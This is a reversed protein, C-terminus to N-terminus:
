QNTQKKATTATSTTKKKKDKRDEKKVELKGKKKNQMAKKFRKDKRAQLTFKSNFINKDNSIKKNKKLQQVKSFAETSEVGKKSLKKIKKRLVRPAISMENKFDFIENENEKFNTTKMNKEFNKTPIIDSKQIGKKVKKVKPQEQEDDSDDQDHVVAKGKLKSKLRQIAHEKNIINAKEAKKVKKKELREAPVAKKVRIERELLKSGNKELANQFGGKEKFFVYGFGKGEHTKPDRIVRVNLIDGCNEFHHRLQEESIKFHLNGVFITRTYDLIKENAKDVRLHKEMFVKGNAELSKEAEEQTSFLIYANKRDAGEKFKKLIVSAKKPMKSNEIPVSRMWIKEIKGYQKFEKAIQSGTAELSINGVFVTRDDKEKKQKATMNEDIFPNKEENEENEPNIVDEVIVPEAIVTKEKSFLDAVESAAKNNAKENSKKGQNQASQQLLYGLTGSM